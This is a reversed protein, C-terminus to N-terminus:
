PLPKRLVVDVLDTNNDAPRNLSEAYFGVLEFPSQQTLSKIENISYGREVHTESFSEGSEKLDIHMDMQVFGRPLFSCRSRYKFRETDVIKEKEKFALGPKFDFLLIGGPNINRYAASLFRSFAEEDLLYNTSFDFCFAVNVREPLRYSNMNARIWQVRGEQDKARAKELMSDSIDVGYLLGYVEGTYRLINNGTGCAIDAIDRLPIDLYACTRRVFSEWRDYKEKTIVEDFVRSFVRYPEEQKRNM